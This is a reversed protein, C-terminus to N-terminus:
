HGRNIVFDDYEEQPLVSRGDTGSVWVAPCSSLSSEPVLHWKAVLLAESRIVNRGWKRRLDQLLLFKNKGTNTSVVVRCPLSPQTAVSVGLKLISYFKFEAM